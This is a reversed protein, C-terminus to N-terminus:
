QCSPSPKNARKGNSQLCGLNNVRWRLPGVREVSVGFSELIRATLEVYPTSVAPAELTVDIGSPLRSGIMLLASAFQSSRRGPLRISGGAVRRGGVVLPLSGNPGRVIPVGLEGLARALEEMPREALRASGEFRTPRGGLAAVAALFRLSSGSDKLEVVGGGAPMGGCGRVVWEHDTRRIAIGIAQLGALTVLTDDAVLPRVLLSEGRALAAAILARHTVSKSPPAELTASLPGQIAEIRRVNM